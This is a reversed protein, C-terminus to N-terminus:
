LLQALAGSLSRWLQLCFHIEGGKSQDDRTKAGMAISLQNLCGDKEERGQQLLPRANSM